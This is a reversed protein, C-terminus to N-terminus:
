GGGGDSESRSLGGRPYPGAPEVTGGRTRRDRSARMAPLPHGCEWWLAAALGQSCVLVGFAGDLIYHNATLVVAIAMLAPLLTAALLGRWDRWVLVLGIGILYAWGVHLSPMAAYPNVFPGLSQAQYSVQSYLQMTDVFGYGEVLRPPAVPVLSYCLLGAVASLLFANRLLGYVRPHQWLLWLGVLVIVPAHGWFYVWNWFRVGLASEVAWAQMGPEWFVGLAQQWSIVRAANEAAIQARDTVNGRVLFYV